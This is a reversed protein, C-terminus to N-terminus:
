LTSGVAVGFSPYVADERIDDSFEYVPFGANLTLRFFLGGGPKQFRYGAGMPVVVFTTEELLGGLVSHNNIVEHVV